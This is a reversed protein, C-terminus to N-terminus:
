ARVHAPLSALTARISPPLALALSLSLSLFATSGVWAAPNTINEQVGAVCIAIADNSNTIRGNLYGGGRDNGDVRM